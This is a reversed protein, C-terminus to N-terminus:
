SFSKMFFSCMSWRQLLSQELMNKFRRNHFLPGATWRQLLSQDLMNKFRRKHLLTGATWRQLLSHYLRSKIYLPPGATWRQVPPENKKYFSIYSTSRLIRQRRGLEIMIFCTYIM